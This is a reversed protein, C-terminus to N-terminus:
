SEIEIINVRVFVVIFFIIDSKVLKQGIMKLIWEVVFQDNYDNLAPKEKESRPSSLPHFYIIWSAHYEYSPLKPDNSTEFLSINSRNKRLFFTTFYRHRSVFRLPLWLKSSFRYFPFAFHCAKTSFTFCGEMKGPHLVCLGGRRRRGRYLCRHLICAHLRYLPTDIERFLPGTIGSQRTCWIWERAELM